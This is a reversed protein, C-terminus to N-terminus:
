WWTATPHDFARDGPMGFMQLLLKVSVCPPIPKSFRGRRTSDPIQHCVYSNIEMEFSIEYINVPNREKYGRSM